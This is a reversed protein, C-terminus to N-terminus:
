TSPQDDSPNPNLIRARQKELEAETKDAFEKDDKKRNMAVLLDDECGAFNDRSTEEHFSSIKGGFLAEASPLAAMDAADPTIDSQMFSEIEEPSVEKELARETLYSFAAIVEDDTPRIPFNMNM